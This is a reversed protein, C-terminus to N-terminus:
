CSRCARVHFLLPLKKDSRFGLASPLCVSDSSHIRVLSLRALRPARKSVAYADLIHFLIAACFVFLIGPCVPALWRQGYCVALVATLLFAQVILVFRWKPSVDPDASSFVALLTLGRVAPFIHAPDMRIIGYKCLVFVPAGLLLIFCIREIATRCFEHRWNGFLAAFFIVGGSIGLWPIWLPTQSGPGLALAYNYGASIHWSNIFFSVLNSLDQQAPIRWILPLALLFVPTALIIRNRKLLLVDALVLSVLIIPVSMFKVFVCLAGMISAYVIVGYKIKANEEKLINWILLPFLFVFVEYAPNAIIITFLFSGLAALLLFFLSSVSRKRIFFSGFPLLLAFSFLSSLFLRIPDYPFLLYGLPGYNFIIDRGFQLNQQHAHCLIRVWSSDLSSGELSALLSPADPLHTLLFLLFLVIGGFRVLKGTERAPDETGRLAAFYRTLSRPLRKWSKFGSKGDPRDERVEQRIATPVSSGNKGENCVPIVITTKHRM